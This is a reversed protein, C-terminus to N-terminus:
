RNPPEVTNWEVLETKPAEHDSGDHYVFSRQNIWDTKVRKGRAIAARVKPGGLLVAAEVLNKPQEGWDHTIYTKTVPGTRYRTAIFVDDSGNEAVCLAVVHGDQHTLAICDDGKDRAREKDEWAMREDYDRWGGPYHEYPRLRPREFAAAYAKNLRTELKAEDALWRKHDSAAKQRRDHVERQRAIEGDNDDGWLARFIHKARGYPPSTNRVAEKVETQTLSGRYSNTGNQVLQNAIRAIRARESLGAWALGDLIRDRKAM